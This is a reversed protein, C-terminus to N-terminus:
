HCAIHAGHQGLVHQYVIVFWSMTMSLTCIRHSGGIISQGQSLRVDISSGKRLFLIGSPLHLSLRSRYLCTTCQAVFVKQQLFSWHWGYGASCLQKVIFTRRRRCAKLSCSLVSWLVCSVVFHLSNAMCFAGKYLEVATM